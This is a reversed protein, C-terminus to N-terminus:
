QPAVPTLVCAHLRLRQNNPTGFTRRESLKAATTSPRWKPQDESSRPRRTRDRYESRIMTGNRKVFVTGDSEGIIDGHNNIGLALSWGGNLTGVESM